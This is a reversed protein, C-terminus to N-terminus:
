WIIIHKVRFYDCEQIRTVKLPTKTLHKVVTIFIYIYIYIYIYININGVYVINWIESENQLLIFSRYLYSCEYKNPLFPFIYWVWLILLFHSVSVKSVPFLQQKSLISFIIFLTVFFFNQINCIQKTPFIKNSQKQKNQWRLTKSNTFVIGYFSRM